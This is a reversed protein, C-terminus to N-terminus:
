EKLQFRSPGFALIPLFVISLLILGITFGVDHGFSKSLAHYLKISYVLVVIAILLNIITPIGLGATYTGAAMQAAAQASTIGALASAVILSGFILWFWSAPKRLTKILVWLNYIPIIGKWGPEGMKVFIKWMSVLILVVFLLYFVGYAAWFGTPLVPYPNM